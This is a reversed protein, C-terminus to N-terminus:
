KDVAVTSNSKFKDALKHYASILHKSKSYYTYEKDCVECKYKKDKQKDMFNKNDKNQDYKKKTETEM